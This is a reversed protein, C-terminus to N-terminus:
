SSNKDGAAYIELYERDTPMADRIEILRSLEM